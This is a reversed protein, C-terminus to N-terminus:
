AFGLRQARALFDHRSRGTRQQSLERSPVQVLGTKCGDLAMIVASVVPLLVGPQCLRLESFAPPRILIWGLRNEKYVDVFQKIGHVKTLCEFPMTHIKDALKLKHMRRCFDMFSEIKLKVLDM